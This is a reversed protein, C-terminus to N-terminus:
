TKKLKPIAGYREFVEGAGELDFLGAAAGQELHEGLEFLTAQHFFKGV